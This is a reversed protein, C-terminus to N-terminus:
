GECLAKFGVEAIGARFCATNNRVTEENQIIGSQWKAFRSDADVTRGIEDNVVVRSTGPVQIPGFWSHLACYFCVHNTAVADHAWPRDVINDQVIKEPVPTPYVRPM